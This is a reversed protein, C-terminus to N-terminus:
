VNLRLDKLEVMERPHEEAPKLPRKLERIFEAEVHAKEEGHRIHEKSAREGSLLRVANIIISKDAGTEGTIINLGPCFEVDLRGRLTM